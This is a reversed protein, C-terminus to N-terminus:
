YLRKSEDKVELSAIQVACADCLGDEGGCTCSLKDKTGNKHILDTYFVKGCGKSAKQIFRADSPDLTKSLKSKDKQHTNNIKESCEPCPGASTLEHCQCQNLQTPFAMVYAQLESLISLGKSINGNSILTRAEQLRERIHHKNMTEM